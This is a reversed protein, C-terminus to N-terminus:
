RVGQAAVEGAAEGPRRSNPDPVYWRDKGKARLREDDQALQAPGQLQHILLQSHPKAGRGAM